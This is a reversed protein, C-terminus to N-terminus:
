YGVYHGTSSCSKKADVTVSEIELAFVSDFTSPNAGHVRSLFTFSNNMSIIIFNYFTAITVVMLGTYM